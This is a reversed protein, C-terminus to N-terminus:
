RRKIRCLSDDVEGSAIKMALGRCNAFGCSGCDYQPLTDLIANVKQFWKMREQISQKQVNIQRKKLYEDESLILHNDLCDNLMSEIHFRGEFPNNWLYYGGICGQYCHYLAIM